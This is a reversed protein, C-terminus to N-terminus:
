PVTGGDDGPARFNRWVDAPVPPEPVGFRKRVVPDDRKPDYKGLNKMVMTRAAFQLLGIENNKRYAACINQYELSAVLAFFIFVMTELKGDGPERKPARYQHEAHDTLQEGIALLEENEIEADVRHALRNRLRNLSRLASVDADRFAGLAHCLAVKNAFTLRDTPLASPNALHVSLANNVCLELWLHGKLFCELSSKTGMHERFLLYDLPM